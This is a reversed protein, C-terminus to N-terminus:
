AYPGSGAPGPRGGLLNKEWLEGLSYEDLWATLRQADPRTFVSSGGDREVVILDQLDFQNMLTVSQTALLVQARNSAQHLLGALQVIAFPHLGLEPEDLVVLHPLNPQLLLTALCIFRLTGDSMQNASFVVDTDVQQWRLRVRDNGEPHLVFDRFFPAVQRVVAVIRQYATSDVGDRMALLVAALNGADSRLALNDATPNLRKVPADRSTDHFHFVRCGKVLDYTDEFPPFMSQGIPARAGRGRSPLGSETHGVGLPIAMGDSEVVEEAFILEDNAGPVLLATYSRNPGRLVVRISHAPTVRDLLASAGGNVGVHLRLERDAIRGLLELVRIFNSKGSGNAGIFVNLRGLTVTAHSISTFGEVEIESLAGGSM